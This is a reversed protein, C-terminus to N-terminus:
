KQQEERGWAVNITNFFVPICLTLMPSLPYPFHTMEVLYQTLTGLTKVLNDSDVYFERLLM